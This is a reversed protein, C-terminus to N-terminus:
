ENKGHILRRRIIYGWSTISVALFALMAIIAGRIGPIGTNPVTDFPTKTCEACDCGPECPPLVTLTITNSWVGIQQQNEQGWNLYFTARYRLEHTGLELTQGFSWTEGDRTFIDVNRIVNNVGFLRLRNGPYPLETVIAGGWDVQVDWGPIHPWFLYSYAIMLDKGSNNKLEVSGRFNEGQRVTTEEVSITLLFDEQGDALAHAQTVGMFGVVLAM